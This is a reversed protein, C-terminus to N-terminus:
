IFKDSFITQNDYFINRKCARVLHTLPSNNFGLFSQSSGLTELLNRPNKSDKPFSQQQQLGNSPLCKRVTFYKKYSFLFVLFATKADEELINFIKLDCVFRKKKREQKL